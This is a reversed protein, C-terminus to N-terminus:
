LNNTPAKPVDARSPDPANVQRLRNGRQRVGDLSSAEFHDSAFRADVPDLWGLTAQVREHSYYGTYAAQVLIDFSDGQIRELQELKADAEVHSLQRFGKEDPLAALLGVIHVRLHPAAKLADNIFSAIGLDGAGPMVGNPPIIHNLVLALVCSHERTLGAIAPTATVSVSAPPLAAIAATGSIAVVGQIFQRRSMPSDPNRDSPAIPEPTPNTESPKAM